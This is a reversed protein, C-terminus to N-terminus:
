TEEGDKGLPFRFIAEYKPAKDMHTQFLIVENANWRTNKETIREELLSRSFPEQNGWKRAITVHPRYPRKELEFGVSRCASAVTKQLEFLREEKDIDIWLIRPNSEKGFVGLNTVELSFYKHSLLLPKLKNQLNELREKEAFGLFSLTIHYDEPHVWKKFNLKEKLQPQSTWDGIEQKLKAELPIALFFHTGM